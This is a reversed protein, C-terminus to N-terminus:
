PQDVSKYQVALDFGTIEILEHVQTLPLACISLADGYGALGTSMSCRDDDWETKMM